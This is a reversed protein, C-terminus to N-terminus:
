SAGYKFNGYYANLLTQLEKYVDHSADMAETYYACFYNFPLTTIENSTRQGILEKSPLSQPFIGTCKGVYTITSMDPKFKIIFASGVYDLAGYLEDDNDSPSLYESSPSITGELLQHIYDIWVYHFYYVDLGINDIFTISCQETVTMETAFPIGGTRSSTMGSMIQKQPPTFDVAAFTMLRQLQQQDTDNNWYNSSRSWFNQLGSFPPPVMLLLTYGNIDPHFMEFLQSNFYKMVDPLNEDYIKKLLNSVDGNFSGTGNNNTELFSM